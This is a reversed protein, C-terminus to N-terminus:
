RELVAIDRGSNNFDVNFGAGVLYRILNDSPQKGAMRPHVEMVVLRIGKLDAGLLLEIEGGEIDCILVNARHSAIEDELCATEVSVTEVIDKAGTAQQRSAWFDRSVHFRVPSATSPMRWRNVLVRVQLQIGAFGNFEFNRRADGAIRANAEFTRVSPAGVIRAATMSVAGIATGVELVRDGPQVLKTVLDMEKGEYIGETIAHTLNPGYREPDLFVEVNSIRVVRGPRGNALAARRRAEAENAEALSREYEARQAADLSAPAGIVECECFHLYDFGELRVRVFRARAGPLRVVYPKDSFIAGDAKSHVAEWSRGNLSALVTFNRLRHACVNRNFIRVESISHVDGLDVQWWPSLERETHFGAEGDIKGNVAGAADAEPARAKSWISVSSQTAPRNLAVNVPKALLVDLM